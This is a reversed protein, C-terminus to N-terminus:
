MASEGSVSRFDGRGLIPTKGLDGFFPGGRVYSYQCMYPAHIQGRGTGKFGEARASWGIGRAPIANCIQERSYGDRGGGGPDGM